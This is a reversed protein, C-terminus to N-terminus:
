YTISHEHTHGKRASRTTRSDFSPSQNVIPCSAPSEVTNRHLNTLSTRRDTHEIRRWGSSMVRHVVGAGHIERRLVPRYWGPCYPALPSQRHRELSTSFEEKAGRRLRGDRRSGRFPSGMVPAPHQAPADRAVTPDGYEGFVPAKNATDRQQEQQRTLGRIRGQRDAPREGV